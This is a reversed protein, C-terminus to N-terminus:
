TCPDSKSPRPEISQTDAQAQIETVASTISTTQCAEQRRQGETLNFPHNM